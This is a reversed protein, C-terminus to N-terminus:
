GAVERTPMATAILRALKTEISADIVGHTQSGAICSGRGVAEDRVLEVDVHSEIRAMLGPLAERLLQEDDPNVRVRLRSEHAVIQLIEVMQGEVVHPDIEIVRATVRTAIECALRIVDSRAELLMRERQEVFQSLAQAWSETLATLRTRFEDLAETRGADRGQKFGADFGEKRGEAHGTKAADKILRKREAHAADVVRSAETRAAQVLAAGQQELSRLDLVM